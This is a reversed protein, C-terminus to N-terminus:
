IKALFVLEEGVQTKDVPTPFVLNCDYLTEFVITNLELIPTGKKIFKMNEIDILWKDTESKKLIVESLILQKASISEFEYEILGHVSLFRLLVQYANELAIPDDHQGAEYTMGPVGVSNAFCETDGGVDSFNEWGSVVFSPGISKAIELAIKEALMFDPAQSFASHIDLFADKGTFLTELLRVRDYEISDRAVGPLGFMRNMNYDVYRTRAQMADLNGYAFTISGNKLNWTGNELENMFRNIAYIGCPEDGHIGAFVLLNKGPNKAALYFVKKEIEKFM